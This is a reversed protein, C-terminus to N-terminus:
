KFKWIVSMFCGGGKGGGNSTPPTPSSTIVVGQGYLEALDFIIYQGDFLVTDPLPQTFHWDPNQGSPDHSIMSAWKNPNFSSNVKIKLTIQEIENEIENGNSPDIFAFDYVASMPTVELVQITDKASSSEVETRTIEVTRKAGFSTNLKDPAIVFTTQDDVDMIQGDENVVKGVSQGVVETANEFTTQVKKSYPMLSLTPHITFFYNMVFGEGEGKPEIKIGIKDGDKDLDGPTYRIEWLTADSNRIPNSLTGNGQLLTIFPSVTLIGHDFIQILTLRKNEVLIESSSVLVTLTLVASTEGTTYSKLASNSFGEKSAVLYFTGEKEMYLIFKGQNDTKASSLVKPKGKNDQAVANVKAEPVVNGELDVATGSININGVAQRTYPDSEISIGPTVISITVEKNLPTNWGDITKFEVQYTGLSLESKIYGSDHWTSETTLKWKAGAEIAEQPVINVKIGGTTGIIFIQEESFISGNFTNDIAQVSWYYTGPPLNEITWSNNHNTNGFRPVYRYGTTVNAMPSLKQVGNASTGLRVNYTLANQSTQSDTSKDWSLTVSNGKVLSSLNTPKTPTTNIAGVNNRYIKTIPNLPEYLSTQGALLIDLDGDNDYDGWAVSGYFIGSLSVGTDTFIASGDNRYVKCILQDMLKKGAILIDLDGDNDYDGWAVSSNEVGELSADIDGFISNGNNQFIKSILGSEGWGTLLIDLDGDNDYDGWAVSSGCVGPLSANIDM